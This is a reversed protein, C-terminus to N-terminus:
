DTSAQLLNAGGQKEAWSRWARRYAAEMERSFRPADMLPSAQMRARLGSRLAALRDLDRVLAVAAQEFADPTRAVLEPVDLNMAICRGARGVATAGVLTVVPVGM